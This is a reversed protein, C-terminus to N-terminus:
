FEIHQGFARTQEQKILHLDMATLFFFYINLIM